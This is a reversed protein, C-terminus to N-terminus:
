IATGQTVVAQMTGCACEGNEACVLDVVVGNSLFRGAGGCQETPTVTACGSYKLCHETHGSNCCEAVTTTVNLCANVKIGYCTSVVENSEVIWCYIEVQTSGILAMEGCEPTTLYYATTDSRWRGIVDADVPILCPECPNVTPCGYPGYGCSINEYTTGDILQWCCEGGDPSYGLTVTLKGAVGVDDRPNTATEDPCPVNELDFCPRCYPENGQLGSFIATVTCPNDCEETYPNGIACHLTLTKEVVGCLQEYKDLKVCGRYLSCGRVCRWGIWEPGCLPGDHTCEVCSTVPPCNCYIRPTVWAVVWLYFEVQCSVASDNHYCDIGARISYYIDEAGQCCGSCTSHSYGRWNAINSGAPDNPFIDDCSGCNYYIPLWGYCARPDIDNCDISPCAHLTAGGGGADDIIVVQVTTAVPMDKRLNIPQNDQSCQWCYSSCPDASTLSAAAIKQQKGTSDCPDHYAVINGISVADQSQNLGATELKGSDGVEVPRSKAIELSHATAHLGQFSLQENDNVPFSLMQRRLNDCNM